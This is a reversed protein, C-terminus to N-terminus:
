LMDGDQEAAVVAGIRCSLLDRGIIDAPAGCEAWTKSVAFSVHVSSTWTFGEGIM